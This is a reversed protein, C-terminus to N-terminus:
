SERRNGGVVENNAYIKVVYHANLPLSGSAPVTVEWQRGGELKPGVERQDWASWAPEVAVEAVDVEADAAPQPIRERVAIQVDRGLRNHLEIAIHHHLEAMAVVNSGSRQEEFRTNRVCRISQEVGLGLKFRGKPGVLPLHSSLVYEGSVYVEVPGPLLPADIPNDVSAVRFVNTDVRPVVVYTVTCTATRLGLPVSNWVAGSPVDVADDARYTYDFHGTSDGVDVAGPPLRLDAAQDAQRRAERLVDMPDFAVALGSRRLLRDYDEHPEVPRLVGRHGSAPSQLRLQDFAVSPAAAIDDSAEVDVYAESKARPPAKKKSRRGAEAVRGSVSMKPAAPAAMPEGSPMPAGEAAGGFGSELSLDLMETQEDEFAASAAPALTQLEPPGFPDVHLDPSRFRPRPPLLSAARARARDFDAYLADSGSPPPRYGPAPPAPQAKGIRFSPLTPLETFAAPSATSLELQVGKWDEGSAQTVLGRLQLRASSGDRAIDCTYQPAWRAGPIGYDLELSVSAGPELGGDRGRVQVLVTKTVAEPRVGRALRQRNVADQLAAAEETKQVRERRLTRAEELREGITEDTFQDLAVRARMPSAPPPKGEEGMPRKPVSLERLLKMESEILQLSRDIAVIQRRVERLASEDPPEPIDEPAKAFLGVKVSGAVVGDTTSRVRVTADQLALPLGAVEVVSGDEVVGQVVRTVTAGRHYVRVRAIASESPM